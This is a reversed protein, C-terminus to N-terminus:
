ALVMGHACYLQSFGRFEQPCNSKGRLAGHMRASTQMYTLTMRFVPHSYTM